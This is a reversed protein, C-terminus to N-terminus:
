QLALENEQVVTQNFYNLYSEIGDYAMTLLNSGASMEKALGVTTALNAGTSIGVSIGEYKLMKQVM